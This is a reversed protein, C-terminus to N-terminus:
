RRRKANIKDKNRHWYALDIARVKDRNKAKYAKMYALLRAKNKVYYAQKQAKIRDRNRAQYAKAYASNDRPKRMLKDTRALFDQVQQSSDKLNSTTAPIHM